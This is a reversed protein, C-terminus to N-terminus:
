PQSNASNNIAVQEKPIYDRIDNIFFTLLDGKGLGKNAHGCDARISYLLVELALMAKALDDNTAKGSQQQQTYLILAERFASFDRTFRDSGWVLIKQTFDNFFTSIEEEPLKTGTKSSQFIKFLFQVLEQYTPIHKERIEHEIEQRKIALEKSKEFFRALVASLVSVLVTGTAAIIAAGVTPQSHSIYDWFLQGIKVVCWILFGALGVIVVVATGTQWRSPTNKAVM